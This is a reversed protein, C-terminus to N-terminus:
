AACRARNLYVDAIIVCARARFENGRKLWMRALNLNRLVRKLDISDRRRKCIAVGVASACAIADLSQLTLIM